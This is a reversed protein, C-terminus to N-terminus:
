RYKKVLRSIRKKKLLNSQMMGKKTLPIKVKPTKLYKTGREKRTKNRHNIDAVVSKSHKKMYNTILPQWWDTNSPHSIYYDVVEFLSFKKDHHITRGIKKAEKKIQPSLKKADQTLKAFKKSQAASLGHNILIRRESYKEMELTLHEVAHKALLYHIDYFISGHLHYNHSKAKVDKKPHDKSIESHTPPLFLDDKKVSKKALPFTHVEALEVAKKVLSFAKRYDGKIKYGDKEQVGSIPIGPVLVRLSLVLLMKIHDRIMERYEKTVDDWKEALWTKAQKPLDLSDFLEKTTVYHAWVKHGTKNIEKYTKLANKPSDFKIGTPIKCGLLSHDLKGYPTKSLKVKDGNPHQPVPPHTCPVRKSHGNPHQPVPPHTCPVRKSHGNPHQPVPPHTCPVRKSHGNPHQPVPPHTCPVRKSHGNPHAIKFHLCPVKVGYKLHGNPHKVVKHTCPVTVSDGNPHPAKLHTCPVTVSDGNPHPAKLHTCPVTVSDGNPHPAKLHTCPVTVSDGNPHPAKLHTCPVTMEFDNPITITEFTPVLFNAKEMGDVITNLVEYGKYDVSYQKIRKEFEIRKEEITKKKEIFNLVKDLKSDLWMNFGKDVLDFFIPMKSLVIYAISVGTDLGTAFTGTTITTKDDKDYLTDVWRSKDYKKIKKFSPPLNNKDSEDLLLNIAIEIFNSHAFFDEVGHLGSGFHIRADSINKSKKSKKFQDKTWECTNYIFYNMKMPSTKYHIPDEIQLVGPFGSANLTDERFGPKSQSALVYHGKKSLPNKTRVLLSEDLKLGAPNDMHEEPVYVGINQDTMLGHAIKVGFSQIAICRLISGILAEAGAPGIPASTPDGIVRPIQKVKEFVSPVFVQSFDRMWNGAYIELAQQQQKPISEFNKKSSDLKPDTIKWADFEIKKHVGAEGLM